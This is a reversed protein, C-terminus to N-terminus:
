ELAEAQDFVSTDVQDMAANLETPDLGAEELFQVIMKRLAMAMDSGKYQIGAAEGIEAIEQLIVIALLPLLEEDMPEEIREGAIDIIKYAADFLGTAPDPAAKLGKALDKAAGNEYLASMCFQLIAQFGPDNENLPEDDMEPGQMMNPDQIM